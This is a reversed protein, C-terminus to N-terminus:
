VHELFVKKIGARVALEQGKFGLMRLSGEEFGEVFDDHVFMFTIDSRVFM